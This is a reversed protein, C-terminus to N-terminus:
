NTREWNRGSQWWVELPDWDFDCVPKNDVIWLKCDTELKGPDPNLQWKKGELVAVRVALWQGNDSLACLNGWLRYETSPWRGCIIQADGEGVFWGFWAGEEENLRALGDVVTDILQTMKELRSTFLTSGAHGEMTKM